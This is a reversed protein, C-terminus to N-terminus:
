EGGITGVCREWWIMRRNWIIFNKQSSRQISMGSGPLLSAGGPLKERSADLGAGAVVTASNGPPEPLGTWGRYVTPRVNAKPRGAARGSNKVGM